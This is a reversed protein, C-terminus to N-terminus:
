EEFNRHIYLIDTCHKTEINKVFIHEMSFNTHQVEVWKMGGSLILPTKTKIHTKIINNIGPMFVDVTNIDEADFRNIHIITPIDLQKRNNIIINLKDQITSNEIILDDNESTYKKIDGSHSNINKYFINSHSFHGNDMISYTLLFEYYGRDWHRHVAQIYRVSGDPYIVKKGQGFTPALYHHQDFGRKSGNFYKDPENRLKRIKHYLNYDFYNYEGNERTIVKMNNLYNLEM